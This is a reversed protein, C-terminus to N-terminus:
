RPVRRITRALQNVRRPLKLGRRTGSRAAAIAQAILRANVAIVVVIFAIELGRIAHVLVGSHLAQPLTDPLMRAVTSGCESKLSRGTPQHDIEVSSICDCRRTGSGEPLLPSRGLRM